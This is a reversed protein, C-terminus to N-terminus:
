QQKIKISLVQDGIGGAVSLWNAPYTAFIGALGPDNLENNMTLTGNSAYQIADATRALSLCFCFYLLSYKQFKNIATRLIECTGSYVGLVSAAAAFAGLYQALWYFFVKILAIRGACAM